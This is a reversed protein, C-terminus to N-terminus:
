MKLDEIAEDLSKPERNELIEAQSERVMSGM